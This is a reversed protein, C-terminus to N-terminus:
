ARPKPPDAWLRLAAVTSIGLVIAIVCYRVERAISAAVPSIDLTHTIKLNTFSVAHKVAVDSVDM